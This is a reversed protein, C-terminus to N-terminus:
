FNKVYDDLAEQWSRLAPFKTNLLLSYQPRKADRLFDQGKVAQIDVDLGMKNLFYQAADYWSAQGSNVLHYVGFASAQDVLNWTALVLDKTYTFSGTEDNVAKIAKGDKALKLMLEFFNPKAAPSSGSPGFLKSTRVLYWKLGKGSLKILEQEGDYKTQGYFNIPAPIDDEKYGVKNDGKFVYDSSYHVLIIGNALAIEALKSVFDVNLEKALGQASENKECADVNNYAVTNIIVDPKIDSIKKNLIGQDTVDLETKDWAVLSVDEKASLLECFATGLNGAAGLILITM